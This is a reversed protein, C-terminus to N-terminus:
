WRIGSPKGDLENLVDVHAFSRYRLCGVRVARGYEKLTSVIFKGWETPNAFRDPKVWDGAGRHHPSTGPKAVLGQDREEQSANRYLREQKELCRYGSSWKIPLGLATRVIFFAEALRFHIYIRGGCDACPKSRDGDEHCWADEKDINFRALEAETTLYTKGGNPPMQMQKSM